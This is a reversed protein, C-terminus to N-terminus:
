VGFYLINDINREDFISILEELPVQTPKAALLYFFDKPKESKKEEKPQTIKPDTPQERTMRAQLIHYKNKIQSDNRGQFHKAIQTWKHDLENVLNLLLQEEEPTWPGNNVNPSLYRTWRDKCQRKNRGPMYSAFLKWDNEGYKNILDTLKKDEKASFRCNVKNKSVYSYAEM